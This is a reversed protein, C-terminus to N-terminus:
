PTLIVTRVVGRVEFPEDGLRFVPGVPNFSRLITDPGERYEKLVATEKDTLWAAVIDGGRPISGLEVIVHAGNKISQGARESVMSDGNVRLAVLNASSRGRVGPLNPDLGIHDEADSVDVERLGASVTGIVPISLVPAYPRAGPLGEPEAASAPVGTEVEFETPSWELAGLLARYRGLKLSGPSVHNNELKSLLKLSILNGTREVVDEAKLGLYSRRAKIAAGVSAARTARGKPSTSTVVHLM